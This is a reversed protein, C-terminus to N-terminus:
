YLFVFFFYSLVVEVKRDTSFSVRLLEQKSSLVRGGVQCRFDSGLRNEFSLPALFVIYGTKVLEIWLFFAKATDTEGRNGTGQERSCLGNSM